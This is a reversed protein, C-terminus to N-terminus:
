KEAFGAKRLGPEFITDIQEWQKPHDVGQKAYQRMYAITVEPRGALVRNREAAAKAPNGAHAYAVALYVHTVWHEGASAARECAAIAEDYHRLVLHARCSAFQNTGYNGGPMIDASRALLPFAEEARGLFTLYLARVDLAIVRSPDLESARANAELAAEWRKQAILAEGREFWGYAYGPAAGVALSTLDNAQRVLDAYAPNLGQRFELTIAQAICTAAEAFQPDQHLAQECHRRAAARGEPTGLNDVNFGRFVLEKAGPEHAPERSLRQREQEYLVRRLEVTARAAPLPPWDRVKAEAMELRTGWLQQGSRADILRLGVAVKDASRAFDGDVLYRVNLARGLTGFDSAKARQATVAAQAVVPSFLIAGGLASTLERTYADAAAADASGSAGFPLVAVSLLPPESAAPPRRVLLGAVGIAVILGGAAWWLWRRARAAARPAAPAGGRLSVEAVRFARVPDVINKVQQEGLDEFTAAIRHRVAGQVADSVTVGGPLALGELRAAINVGDGYVTGDPKEIVDGMHVGIRFRMRRDAPVGAALEELQRQVSLATNVAGTATEFIALVSDGAMDVVRGHHLEIEARFVARADELSAMTAAEDQAMLRSYAVADGALIAALRQRGTDGM